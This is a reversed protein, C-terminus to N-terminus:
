GEKKSGGMQAMYSAFGVILLVFALFARGKEPWESIPAFGMVFWALFFIFGLILATNTIAKKM